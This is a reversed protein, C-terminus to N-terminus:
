VDARDEFVLWLEQQGTEHSRLHQAHSFRFRRGAHLIDAYSGIGFMEIHHGRLRDSAGRVHSKLWVNAAQWM